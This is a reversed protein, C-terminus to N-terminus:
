VACDIFIGASWCRVRRGGHSRVAFTHEGKSDRTEEFSTISDVLAQYKLVKTKMVEIQASIEPHEYFKSSSDICIGASWSRLRRGGHSCSLLSVLLARGEAYAALCTYVCVDAYAALCTYVCVSCSKSIQGAVCLDLCPGVQAPLAVKADCTLIV